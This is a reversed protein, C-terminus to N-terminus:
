LISQFVLHCLMPLALIQHSIHGGLSIWVDSLFPCVSIPFHVYEKYWLGLNDLYSMYIAPCILKNM